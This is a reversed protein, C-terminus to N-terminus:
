PKSHACTEGGYEAYKANLIARSGLRHWPGAKARGGESTASQRLRRAEAPLRRSMCRGPKLCCPPSRAPSRQLSDGWRGESRPLKPLALGFRRAERRRKSRGVLPLHFGPNAQHGRQRRRCNHRSLHHPPPAQRPRNDRRLRPSAPARRVATRYLRPKQARTQACEIQLPDQWRRNASRDVKEVAAFVPAARGAPRPAGAVVGIRQPSAEAEARGGESLSRLVPQAEASLDARCARTHSAKAACLRVNPAAKGLAQDHHPIKEKLLRNTRNGGEGLSRLVPRSKKSQEVARLKTLLRLAIRCQHQAKLARSVDRLSREKKALVDVFTRMFVVHLAAAQRALIKAVAGADRPDTEMPESM